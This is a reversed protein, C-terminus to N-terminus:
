RRRKKRIREMQRYCSVVSVENAEKEKRAAQRQKERMLAWAEYKMCIAHCGPYRIECKFCPAKQNMDMVLKIASM